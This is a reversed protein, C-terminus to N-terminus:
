SRNSKKIYTSPGTRSTRIYTSPGTRKSVDITITDLKDPDAFYIRGDYKDQLATTAALTWCARDVTFHFGSGKHQTRNSTNPGGKHRGGGRAAERTANEKKEEKWTPGANTGSNQDKRWRALLLSLWGNVDHMSPGNLEPIIKGCEEVMVLVGKRNSSKKVGKQIKEQLIEEVEDDSVM